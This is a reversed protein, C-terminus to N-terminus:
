PATAVLNEDPLVGGQSLFKKLCADPSPGYIEGTLTYSLAPCGGRCYSIYECARCDAFRDLPIERRQRFKILEPHNLWIDKLNEQNIRGLEVDNIQACPVIVGDARVALKSFVGGCSTLLGCGGEGERGERQAKVMKLWFKAEALPGAAASIRNGYKQILKLLSNMAVTREAPTLQIEDSNKQCLGLYSASNTSFGPLGLDEILLKAVNELDHVNYRNITVRVTTSLKYKQLQKVAAVAKLFTGQGRSAEHIIPQSGDISVQVSNCRKTAALFEAWEETILTGNSLLSFRLRNKIIGNIIEKLDSRFFPEGGALCINFVGIKTAEEFFKLWEAAPLDKEVSGTSTFHSCYKCRLNCNNTINIDVGSPASILKM